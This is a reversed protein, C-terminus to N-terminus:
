GQESEPQQEPPATKATRLYLVWLAAGGGAFALLLSPWVVTLGVLAGFLGGSTQIFVIEDVVSGTLMDELDAEDMKQLQEHVITKFDLQRIGDVLVQTIVEEIKEGKQELLGPAKDLQANLQDFVSDLAKPINPLMEVVKRELTPGWLSRSLVLLREMFGKGTWQGVHQRVFKAASQRTKPSTCFAHAQAYLLDKLEQRFAPADVVGKTAELLTGTLEQVLANKKLFDRIIEPSILRNRIGLAMQEALEAKRAPVLGHWVANSQRPHFLMKVALWNTWFGVVAPTLIVLVPATAAVVSGYAAPSMVYPGILKFVLSALLLPGAVFFPKSLLNVARAIKLSFPVVPTAPASEPVAESAKPAFHELFKALWKLLFKGVPMARPPPSAAAPGAPRSAQKPEEQESAKKSLWAALVGIATGVALSVFAM